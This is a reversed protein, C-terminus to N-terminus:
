ATPEEFPRIVPAAPGPSVPPLSAYAVLYDCEIEVDCGAEHAVAVAARVACTMDARARALAAEGSDTHAHRRLCLRACIATTRHDPESM